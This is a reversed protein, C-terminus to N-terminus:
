AALERPRFPSYAKDSASPEFPEMNAFHINRGYHKCAKALAQLHLGLRRAHFENLCALGVDQEREILADREEQDDPLGVYSREPHLKADEARTLPMRPRDPRSVLYAKTQERVVSHWGEARSRFPYLQEMLAGPGRANCEALHFRAREVTLFRKTDTRFKSETIPSILRYGMADAFAFNRDTSFASDALDYQPRFIRHTMRSLYPYQPAEGSGRGRQSWTLRFGTLLGWHMEYQSHCIIRVASGTSYRSTRPNDSRATSFVVGDTVFVQAVLRFYEEIRLCMTDLVATLVRSGTMAEVLRGYAFPQRLYGLQVWVAIQSRLQEYTWGEIARFAATIALDFIDAPPRGRLQREERPLRFTRMWHALDAALEKTVTPMGERARRNLTAARIDGVM